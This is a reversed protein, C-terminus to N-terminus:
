ACQGRSAQKLRSKQFYPLTPNYSVNEVLVSGLYNKDLRLVSVLETSNFYYLAM